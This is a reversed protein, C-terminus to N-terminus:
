LLFSWSRALIAVGWLSLVGLLLEIRFWKAESFAMLIMPLVFLAAGMLVLGRICKLWFETIVSRGYEFFVYCLLYSAPVAAWYILIKNADVDPKDLSRFFSYLLTCFFISVFVNFQLRNEAEVILAARSTNEASPM